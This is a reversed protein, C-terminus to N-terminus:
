NDANIVFRYQGEGSIGFYSFSLVYSGASLKMTKNFTGSGLNQGALYAYDMRGYVEQLGEGTISVMSDKDITFTVTGMTMGGFSSGTLNVILKNTGNGNFSIASPNYSDVNIVPPVKVPKNSYLIYVYSNDELKEIEALLEKAEYDVGTPYSLVFGSANTYSLVYLDGPYDSTIQSVDLFISDKGDENLNGGNKPSLIAGSLYHLYRLDDETIDTNDLSIAPKEGDISNIITYLDSDSESITKLIDFAVPNNLENEYGTYKATYYDSSEGAVSIRDTIEISESPDSSSSNNGELLGIVGGIYAKASGTDGSISVDKARVEKVAVARGILGGIYVEENNPNKDAAYKITVSEVALDNVPMDTYGILGYSTVKDDAAYINSGILYVNSVKHGNGNYAAKLPHDKSGIATWEKNNLNIDETQNIVTCALTGKYTENGIWALDEATDITCTGNEIEVGPNQSPVKGNWGDSGVHIELDTYVSENSSAYFRVYYTGGILGQIRLKNGTDDEYLLLYPIDDIPMGTDDFYEVEEKNEDLFKYSISKDDANEPMPTINIIDSTEEIGVSVIQPEVLITSIVSGTVTVRIRIWLGSAENIGDVLAVGPKIGTIEGSSSVTVVDSSSGDEATSTVTWTISKDTTNAPEFTLVPTFSEGLAITKETPDVSLNEAIIDDTTVEINLTATVDEMEESSPSHTATLIASGTKLGRITITVTGNADVDTQDVIEAVPGNEMTEEESMGANVLSLTFDKYDADAPLIELDVTATTGEQVSLFSPNFYMYDVETPVVTVLARDQLTTTGDTWTAVVYVQGINVSSATIFGTNTVTLIDDPDDESIKEISWTITQDTINAPTFEVELQKSEGKHLDINQETISIHTPIIKSVTIKATGYADPNTVSEAKVTATGYNVATVLGSSDVTVADGDIVSWSLDKISADNPAVTASLKAQDGLIMTLEDPDVIVETVKIESVNVTVTKKIGNITEVTITASGVGKAIVHGNQSVEAVNPSNSSWTLTKNNANDPLVTAVLDAEDGIVMDLKDPNITIGTPLVLSGTVTITVSKCLSTNSVACAKVTSTGSKLGLIQGTKESISLVDNNSSTWTLEKQNTNEPTYTINPSLTEGARLTNSPYKFSFDTLAITKEKVTVRVANYVDSGYYSGGRNHVYIYTEGVSNATILGNNDVSAVGGNLSNYTFTQVTANEPITKPNLQYTDGIELEISLQGVDIGETNIHIGEVTVPMEKEITSITGDAKQSQCNARVKAINNTTRADEARVQLSVDTYDVISLLDSNESVTFECSKVTVDDPVFEVLIDAMDGVRLTLEDPNFHIDDPYTDRVTVNIINYAGNEVAEVRIQAEGPAVATILGNQNALAVEPNYNVWRLAKNIASDPYVKANVRLTQGPELSVDIPNRTESIAGTIQDPEVWITVAQAKTSDDPNIDPEFDPDSPEIPTDDPNTFNTPIRNGGVTVINDPAEPLEYGFKNISEIKNIALENGPEFIRPVGFATIM